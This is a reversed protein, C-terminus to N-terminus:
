VILIIIIVIFYISDKLDIMWLTSPITETFSDGVKKEIKVWVYNLPWLDATSQSSINSCGSCFVASM